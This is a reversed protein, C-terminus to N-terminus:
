DSLIEGSLVWTKGNFTMLEMQRIPYFNTPSTNIEIGPLLLPNGPNHLNTAQKMINERTLDDKCQRLVQELGKAVGYAFM